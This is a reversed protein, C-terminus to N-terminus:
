NPSPTTETRLKPVPDISCAGAIGPWPRKRTGVGCLGACPPVRRACALRAGPIHPGSKPLGMQPRPRNPQIHMLRHAASLRVCGVAARGLCMRSRVARRPAGAVSRTRCNTCLQRCCVASLRGLAAAGAYSVVGDGFQRGWIAGLNCSRLREGRAAAAPRISSRMLVASMRAHRSHFIGRQLGFRVRGLNSGRTATCLGRRVCGVTLQARNDAIYSKAASGHFASVNRMLSLRDM